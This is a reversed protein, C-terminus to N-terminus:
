FFKSKLYEYHKNLDKDDVRDLPRGAQDLFQQRYEFSPEVWQMCFRKVEYYDQSKNQHTLDAVGKFDYWKDKDKKLDISSVTLFQNLGKYSQCEFLFGKVWASLLDMMQKLFMDHLGKEFQQITIDGKTFKKYGSLIRAAEADGPRALIQPLNAAQNGQFLKGTDSEGAPGSQEFVREGVAGGQEDM